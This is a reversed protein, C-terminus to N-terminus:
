TPVTAMDEDDNSIPPSLVKVPAFVKALETVIVPEMTPLVLKLPVAEVVVNAPHTSM